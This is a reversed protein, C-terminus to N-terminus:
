RCNSSSDVLNLLVDIRDTSIDVPFKEILSPGEPHPFPVFAIAAYVKDPTKRFLDAMFNKKVSAAVAEVPQRGAQVEDGNDM